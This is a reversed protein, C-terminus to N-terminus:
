VRLIGIIEKKEGKEAVSLREKKALYLRQRQKRRREIKTPMATCFFIAQCAKANCDFLRIKWM